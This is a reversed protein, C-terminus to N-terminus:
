SLTKKFIIRFTTGEGPASSKVFIKGLHQEVIIRKVLSLGLGWGRKKTSYGPNFVSKHNTKAIGKGTDSVDIIIESDSETIFVKIKGHGTGIADVANRFLNEFVWVILQNNLSLLIDQKLNNIFIYEIRKSSRRKMYEMVSEIIDVINEDNFDPDSGIKSFRESVLTLRDVDKSMERFGEERPYQMKLVEIWGMLSSIPTGLQHATEKAMGAWVKSQESRRSFSFLTYGLILFLSIVAFFIFPFWKMETLMQSDEYFIFCHSNGPLDVVVPDNERKMIAIRAHLKITDSIDTSDLNGGYALITTQLSDTVIVPTSLSNSVVENLFLDTYNDLTRKLRHYLKSNRYYAYQVDDGYVKIIIPPYNTFQRKNIESFIRSERYRETNLVAKIINSEDVVVVPIDKNGSVVEMYFSMEDDLGAEGLGKMAMAWLKINRHEKERLSKFLHETYNVLDAKQGIAKAWIRIQRQEEHALNNLFRSTYWLSVVVILLAFAILFLKGNRKKSYIDM